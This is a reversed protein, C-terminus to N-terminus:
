RLARRIIKGTQHNARDFANRSTNLAARIAVWSIKGASTLKKLRARARAYKARMQKLPARVGFRQAPRMKRTVARLAAALERWSKAQAEILKHFAPKRLGWKVDAKRMHGNFEAEFGKWQAELHSKVSRRNSAREMEKKKITAAFRARRKRLNYIFEALESRFHLKRARRELSVIAADMENIREKAWAM